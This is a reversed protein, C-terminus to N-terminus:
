SFKSVFMVDNHSWYHIEPYAKDFLSTKMYGKGFVTFGHEDYFRDRLLTLRELPDYNGAALRHCDTWSACLVFM